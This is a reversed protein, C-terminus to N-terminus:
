PMYDAFDNLHSDDDGEPLEIMGRCNGPRRRHEAGAPTVSSLKAVPREGDTILVEQGANAQAILARLRKEAEDIPITLSM